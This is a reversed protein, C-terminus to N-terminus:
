KGAEYDGSKAADTISKVDGGACFAKNGAGKM